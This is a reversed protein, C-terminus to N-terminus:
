NFDVAKHDDDELYITVDSLDPKNIKQFLKGRPQQNIKHGPPKFFAFNYLIVERIGNVISGSLVDCRLHIEDIGTIDIPKESKNSRPILQIFGDFDNIPGSHSQTFGLIHLFPKRPFNQLKFM